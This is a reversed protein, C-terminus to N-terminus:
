RQAIETPLPTSKKLLQSGLFTARRPLNATRVPCSHHKGLGRGHHGGLSSLDLSLRCRDAVHGLEDARVRVAFTGDPPQDGEHHQAAVKEGDCQAM